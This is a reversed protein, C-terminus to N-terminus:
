ELAKHFADIAERAKKRSAESDTDKVTNYLTAYRMLASWMAKAQADNAAKGQAIQSLTDIQASLRQKPLQKEISVDFADGADLAAKLSSSMAVYVKNLCEVGDPDVKGKPEALRRIAGKCNNKNVIGIATVWPPSKMDLAAAQAAVAVGATRRQELSFERELFTEIHVIDAKLREVNEPSSFYERLANNRREMDVNQGFGLVAPKVIPWVADFLAKAAGLTGLGFERGIYDRTAFPDARLVSNACAQGSETVLWSDYTEPVQGATIDITYNKRLNQFLTKVDESSPKVLGKIASAMANTTQIPAAVRLYGYRTKCLLERPAPALENFTAHSQDEGQLFDRIMGKIMDERAARRYGKLRDTEVGAGFAALADSVQASPPMLAEPPVYAAGGPRSACSSVTLAVTLVLLPGCRARRSM